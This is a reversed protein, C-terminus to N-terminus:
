GTAAEWATLVPVAWCEKENADCGDCWAGIVEDGLGHMAEVPHQMQLMQAMADGAVLLARRDYARVQASDPGTLPAMDPIGRFENDRGRITGDTVM